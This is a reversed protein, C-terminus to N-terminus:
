GKKVFREKNKQSILRLGILRRIDSEVNQLVVGLSYAEDCEPYPLDNIIKWFVSSKEGSYATPVGLKHLEFDINDIM